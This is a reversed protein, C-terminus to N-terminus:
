NADRPVPSPAHTAGQEAEGRKDRQEREQRSKADRLERQLDHREVKRADLKEKVAAIRADLMAIQEETLKLDSELRPLDDPGPLTRSRMIQDRVERTHQLKRAREEQLERLRQELAAIQQTVKDLAQQLEGIRQARFGQELDVRAPDIGQPRPPRQVRGAAPAGKPNGPDAPWAAAAM